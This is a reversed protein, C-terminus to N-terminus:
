SSRAIAFVRHNGWDLVSALTKACIGDPAFSIMSGGAIICVPLLDPFPLTEKLRKLSILPVSQTGLSRARM